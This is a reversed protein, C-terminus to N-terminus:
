VPQYLAVGLAQSPLYYHVYVYIAGAVFLVILAGTLATLAILWHGYSNLRTLVPDETPAGTTTPQNTPATSPQATPSATPFETPARTPQETPSQMPAVTPASTPPTPSATPFPTPALSPVNDVTLQCIRRTWNVEFTSNDYVAETWVGVIVSSGDSAKAAGATSPVQWAFLREDDSALFLKGADIGTM